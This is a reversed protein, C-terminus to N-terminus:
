RFSSWTGSETSKGDPKEKPKDNSLDITLYIIDDREDVYSALATYKKNDITITKPKDGLVNPCNVIDEKLWGVIKKGDASISVQEWAM